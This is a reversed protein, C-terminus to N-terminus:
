VKNFILGSNYNILINNQSLNNKWENIKQRYEDLDVKYYNVHKILLKSFYFYSPYYVNEIKDSLILLSPVFTGYSIVINKTRLILKVDLEFDRKKYRINPYLEILKNICPNKEDESIIYIYRYKNNNIINIYYSLPPVIYSPLPNESFIDGGRIHILLNDEPLELLNSIDIVFLDKIIKKIRKQTVKNFIKKFDSDDNFLKENSVFVNNLYFFDSDNQINNNLITINNNIIVYRKNFYKHRPLTINYNFHLAIGIVNKLQVINNGLRGRWNSILLNM